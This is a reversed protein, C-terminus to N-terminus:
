DSAGRFGVPWVASDGTAASELDVIGLNKSFNQSYIEM